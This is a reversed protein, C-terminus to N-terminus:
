SYTEMLDGVKKILDALSGNNDIVHDWKITDGGTETIHSDFIGTRRDVKILIGGRSKVYAAENHHRVDTIVFRATTSKNIQQDVLRLWIDDGYTNRMQTGLTQLFAGGTMGFGCDETKFDDAFADRGTMISAIEKLKDAFAKRLYGHDRLIAGVTDKGSKARYGLGIIRPAKM